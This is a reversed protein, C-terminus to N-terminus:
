VSRRGSRRARMESERWAESRGDNAPRAEAQRERCIGDGGLFLGQPRRRWQGRDSRQSVVGQGASCCVLPWRSALTRELAADTHRAKITSHMACQSLSFLNREGSMSVGCRLRGCDAFWVLAARGLFFRCSFLLGRVVQMEPDRTALAAARQWDSYSRARGDGRPANVSPVTAASVM